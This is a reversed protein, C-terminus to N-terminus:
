LAPRPLDLLLIRFKVGDQDPTAGQGAIGGGGAAFGGNRPGAPLEPNVRSL